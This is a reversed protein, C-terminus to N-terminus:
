VLENPAVRLLVARLLTKYLSQIRAEESRLAVPLLLLKQLSHQVSSCLAVASVRTKPLKRVRWTWGLVRCVADLQSFNYM